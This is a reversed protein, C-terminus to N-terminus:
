ALAACECERRTPCLGECGPSPAKYKCETRGKLSGAENQRPPLAKALTTKDSEAEATGLLRPIAWYGEALLGSAKLWRVPARLAGLSAARRRFGALPGKHAGNLAQLLRSCSVM